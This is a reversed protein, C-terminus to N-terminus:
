ANFRDKKLVEGPLTSTGPWLKRGPYILTGIATHVNDGIFAGLKRRGSDIKEGDILTTHNGGDHRYDATITGAGFNGNEGIVSHAAYSNHKSTFNDMLVVDFLEMRGIQVGKGIVTDKRIYAFPGVTCNSDIFVPGEIYTNSKVVTGKGIFVNGKITVNDELTGLIQKNDIRRVLEVNAELYNWPYTLPLFYDEAEVPVCCKEISALSDEKATSLFYMDCSKGGKVLKSNPKSLLKQLDKGSYVSECAFFLVGDTQSIVDKVIDFSSEFPLKSEVYRVKTGNFEEGLVDRVKAAEFGVVVVYEEVEGCALLNHEIVTKDLAKLLAAPRNSTHPQCKVSESAAFCVVKM